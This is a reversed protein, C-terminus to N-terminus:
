YTRTCLTFKYSRSCSMFFQSHSFNSPTLNPLSSVNSFCIVLIQLFALLFVYASFKHVLMLIVGYMSKDLCHMIMFAKKLECNLEQGSIQINAVRVIQSKIRLKGSRKTPRCLVLVIDYRPGTIQPMKASLQVKLCNIDILM